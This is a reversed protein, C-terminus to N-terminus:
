CPPTPAADAWTIQSCWGYQNWFHSHQHAVQYPTEPDGQEGEEREYRRAEAANPMLM